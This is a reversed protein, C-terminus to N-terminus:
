VESFNRDLPSLKRNGAASLIYHCSQSEGATGPKLNHLHTESHPQASSALHKHVQTLKYKHSSMQVTFQDFEITDWNAYHSPMPRSMRPNSDHYPCSTKRKELIEQGAKPGVQDGLWHMGPNRRPPLATLTDLQGSVEM